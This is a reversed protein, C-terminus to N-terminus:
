GTSRCEIHLKPESQRAWTTDTGVEEQKEKVNERVEKAFDPETSSSALKHQRPLLCGRVASFTYREVIESEYDLQSKGQRASESTISKQSKWTKQRDDM